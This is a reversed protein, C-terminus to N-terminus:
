AAPEPATATALPAKEEEADRARFALLFVVLVGFCGAAAVTWVQAWNVDGGATATKQTLWGGFHSGAFMGLGYTVMGLLSQASGRIDPACIREVYIMAAAIAFAFCVGHMAQAVYMLALPKGLAFLGFRVAWALVGIAITGKSGLKKYVFPLILMTAIEAWQGIGMVLPINKEAIGVAKFFNGGFTYYMTAFVLLTFALIMLLLFSPDKLMKFAKGAAFWEV